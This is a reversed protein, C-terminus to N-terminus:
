FIGVLGAVIGASLLAFSVALSRASSTPAAITTSVSTKVYTANSVKNASDTLQLVITDYVPQDARAFLDRRGGAGAAPSGTTSSSTSSSTASASVTVNSTATTGASNNPAKSTSSSVSAVVSPTSKSGASFQGSVGWSGGDKSIPGSSASIAGNAAVTVTIAKCECNSNTGQINYKSDKGAVGIEKLCANDCSPVTAAGNFGGVLTYTGVNLVDAGLSSGLTSALVAAALINARSIESFM